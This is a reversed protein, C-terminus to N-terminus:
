WSFCLGFTTSVLCFFRKEIDAGNRYVLSVKDVVLRGAAANSV